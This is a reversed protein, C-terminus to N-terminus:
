RGGSAGVLESAPISLVETKEARGRISAIAATGNLMSVEGVFDRPGPAALIQEIGDRSEYAELEGELVVVMPCDRSGARIVVEGARVIERTGLPELLSLQHDDLKPFAISETDRYFQADREEPSM